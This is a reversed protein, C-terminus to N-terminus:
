AHDVPEAVPEHPDVDVQGGAHLADRVAALDHDGLRRPPEHRAPELERRQALVPQHVERHGLPQELDDDGPAPRAGERRQAARRRAGRVKRDLQARQQATLRLQRRQALGHEAVLPAQM